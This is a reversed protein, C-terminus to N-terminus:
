ATTPRQGGVALLPRLRTATAREVLATLPKALLAWGLLVVVTGLVFGGLVDQPFHVGVYVRAFGLLLAALTAIAGLWRNVLWAGAAVAAALTAHDSPFGPDPSHAALVLIGPLQAFPRPETVSASIPQAAAVALLMGIPTWLAAAMLRASGSRRALWWGVILLIAFLAVGDAAYLEAPQHLWASHRAFDNVDLFSRRALGPASDEASEALHSAIQFAVPGGM